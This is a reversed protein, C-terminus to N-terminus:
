LQIVPTYWWLGLVAPLDLLILLELDNKARWSTGSWGPSGSVRNWFCFVFCVFFFCLAPSAGCQLIQPKQHSPSITLPVATNDFWVWHAVSLRIGAKLPVMFLHFFIRGGHPIHSVMQAAPQGEVRGEGVAVASPEAWDQLLRPPVWQCLHSQGCGPKQPVRKLYM